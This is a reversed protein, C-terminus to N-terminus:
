RPDGGKLDDIKRKISELGSLVFCYCVMIIVIVAVAGAFINGKLAGCTLDSM